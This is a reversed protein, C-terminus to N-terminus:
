HQTQSRTVKTTAQKEKDFQGKDFQGKDCVFM